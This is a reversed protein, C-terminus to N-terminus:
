MRALTRRRLTSLRGIAGLAPSANHCLFDVALTKPGRIGGARSPRFGGLRGLWPCLRAAVASVAADLSVTLMM